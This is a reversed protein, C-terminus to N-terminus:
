VHALDIQQPSAAQPRSRPHEVQTGMWPHDGLNQGTSDPRSTVYKRDLGVRAICVECSSIVIEVAEILEGHDVRGRGRFRSRAEEMGEVATQLSASVGSGPHDRKGCHGDIVQGVLMTLGVNEKDIDFTGFPFRQTACGPCECGRGIAEQLHVDVAQASPAVGNVGDQIEKPFVAVIPKHGGLALGLERAEFVCRMQEAPPKEQDRDCLPSLPYQGIARKWGRVFRIVQMVVERLSKRWVVAAPTAPKPM